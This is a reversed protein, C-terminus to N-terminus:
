APLPYRTISNVMATVVADGSHLRPNPLKREVSRERRGLVRQTSDRSERDGSGEDRREGGRSGGDRESQRVVPASRIRQKRVETAPSISHEINSHEQSPKTVLNTKAVGGHSSSNPQACLEARRQNSSSFTSRSLLAPARQKSSKPPKTACKEMKAGGVFPQYTHNPATKEVLRSVSKDEIM